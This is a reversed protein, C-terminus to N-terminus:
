RPTVTVAGTGADWRVSGHEFDSQRGGPVAYEDSTPYGLSSGAGGLALWRDRIAGHVEHAGTWPAWYV